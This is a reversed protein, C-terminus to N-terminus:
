RDCGVQMSAEDVNNLTGFSVNVNAETSGCFYRSLCEIDNYTTALVTGVIKKM